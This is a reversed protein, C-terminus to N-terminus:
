RGNLWIIAENRSRFINEKVSWNGYTHALRIRLLGYALDHPAVVALKANGLKDEITLARRALFRIESSALTNGNLESYDMLIRSGPKWEKHDLMEKFLRFFMKIEADGYTKVEFVGDHYIIEYKM